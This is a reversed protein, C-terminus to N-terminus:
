FVVFLLFTFCFFMFPKHLDIFHNRYSSSFCVGTVNAKSCTYSCRNPNVVRYVGTSALIFIDKDNDESFSYIYGLDPQSSGPTSNCHIPTDRACSFPVKETTFNGSDKPNEPAAWIASGYLDAYLYSGFMCPDTMSRYFYGGIIAASVVTMNRNLDFHSYGMVPFTANSSDASLNGALSLHPNFLLSGEYVPWGYNGGKTIIDVEEYRDQGTDACIFYLPRESDFGCRWPNRLGLAWIEPLLIKDESYPNDQPISYNGWLGLEGIEETSPFNDIDLRLIKGVLSRKNQSFGFPDGGQGGDGVMAYLYGDAPGFLIQGGHNFPFTLGMTFIRRVEVPKASKVLFSESKTGNASFEAIVKHFRCPQDAYSSSLQSPDCNADTNCSCRGSCDPTKVKDCNFSAFFRGNHAFKPHFAMGMMGFSNGDYYVKSTLDLFPTSEDFGLAGGSGQQPITALWIKGSQVSFFARNSGDPHAAMNLYSGNGIKELCLGHLHHQAEASELSSPKGDFCKMTENSSGGFANCFASKTEWLQNLKSFTSPPPVSARVQSPPFFPSNLIPVNQCSDWVTSCFSRNSKKTQKSNILTSNCLLPVPRPGSETQFLEASFQDCKACIISKVLAACSSHSINMSEFHMRLQFDKASDCCVKGDYSCFGLPEKTIIPARLDSCYPLSSSPKLLLVIAFCCFLLLILSSM